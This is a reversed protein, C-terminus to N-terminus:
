IKHGYMILSSHDEDYPSMAIDGYVKEVVLNNRLLMERFQELSYLKTQGYKTERKGDPYIILWDSKMMEDEIRSERITVITSKESPIQKVIFKQFHKKIFLPNMTCIFFQGGTKLNKGFSILMRENEKDESHYAFSTNWNICVDFYDEKIFENADGLLFTARDSELMNKVYLIYEESFDVGIVNMLARDFEHALYGKGCCQDYVNMNETLEGVQKMFDITEHVKQNLVVESFDGRFFDLWWQGKNRKM